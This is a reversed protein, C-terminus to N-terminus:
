VQVPNDPERRDPGGLKKDWTEKLELLYHYARPNSRKRREIFNGFIDVYYRLTGAVMEFAVEEDAVKQHIALALNEWHALIHIIDTYLTRDDNIAKDIIDLSLAEDTRELVNFAEDLRARAQRVSDNKTISYELAQLRRSWEYHSQIQKRLLSLQRYAIALGVGAILATLLQLVVSIEM